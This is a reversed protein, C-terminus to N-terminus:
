AAVPCCEAMFSLLGGDYHRHIGRIVEIDSFEEIECDERWVCESAWNRMEIINAPTINVCSLDSFVACFAINNRSLAPTPVISSIKMKMVSM